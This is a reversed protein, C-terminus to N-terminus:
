LIGMTKIKQFLSYPILKIEKKFRQYVKSQFRDQGIAKLKKLVYNNNISEIQKLVYM